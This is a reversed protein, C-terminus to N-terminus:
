KIDYIKRFTDDIKGLCITRTLDSSYGNIRAGFDIVVPEGDQITKETPKAHPLASNPGSAVIIDFPLGQSGNERLYKEMEWATERETMGPRITGTIFEFTKDALAAARTISALEEPEKVARLSEVLGETPILKPAPQRKKLANNMQRLTAVSIHGAEFGLKGGKKAGALDPLWQDIGNIVRFTAFDPAQVKAQETYRFDTALIADEASIFLFGSSGDFGSLFYRNEPRSILIADIEKEALQRRLKQLRKSM